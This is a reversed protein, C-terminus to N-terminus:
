TSVMGKRTINNQVNILAKKTPLITKRSSCKLENSKAKKLNWSGSGRKNKLYPMSNGIILFMINICYYM